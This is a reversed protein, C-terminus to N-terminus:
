PLAYFVGKTALLEWRQAQCKPRLPLLGRWTHMSLAVFVVGRIEVLVQLIQVRRQFRM